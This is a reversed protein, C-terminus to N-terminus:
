VDKVVGHKALERWGSKVGMKQEFREAFDQQTLKIKKPLNVTPTLKRNILPQIAQQLQEHTM